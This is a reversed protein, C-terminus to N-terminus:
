YNVKDRHEKLYKKVKRVYQSMMSTSVNYKDVLNKAPIHYLINDIFVNIAKESLDSQRLVDIISNILREEKSDFQRDDVINNHQLELSFMNNPNVVYKRRSYTLSRIEDKITNQMKVFAFTSFKVNKSVDYKEIAKWLAIDALQKLDEREVTSNYGYKVFLKRSFFNTLYNYIEFLEEKTKSSFNFVDQELTTYIAKEM